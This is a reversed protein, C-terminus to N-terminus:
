RSTNEKGDELAQMEHGLCTWNRWQRRAFLEVVPGPAFEDVIEYFRDPKRSHELRAADFVSPLSLSLRAPKGRRFVLCTEHANRFARGMGIRIRSGDNTVKRWILESPPRRFGWCRAVNLAERAHTAPRWLFLWCDDHLKPLDFACIEDITMTEYHKDAGRGKGPLQDKFPWAPDAVLVRHKTRSSM